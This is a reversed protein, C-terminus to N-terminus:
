VLQVRVRKRGFIPILAIRTKPNALLVSALSTRNLPFRKTPPAMLAPRLNLVLHLFPAEFGGGADAFVHSTGFQDAYNVPLITTHGNVGDHTATDLGEAYAFVYLLGRQMANRVGDNAGLSGIVTAQAYTLPTGLSLYRPPSTVDDPNSDNPIALVKQRDWSVWCRDVTSKPGISIGALTTPIARSTGEPFRVNTDPAVRFGWDTFDLDYTAQSTALADEITFSHSKYTM